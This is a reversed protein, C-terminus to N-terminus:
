RYKSFSCRYKLPVEVTSRRYQSPLEVPVHRQLAQLTGCVPVITACLLLHLLRYRPLFAYIRYVRLCARVLLPKCAYEDVRISVAFTYISTALLQRQSLIRALRTKAYGRTILLRTSAPLVHSCTRVHLLSTRALLAKFRLEPMQARAINAM